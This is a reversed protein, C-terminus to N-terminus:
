RMFAAVRSSLGAMRTTTSHRQAMRLREIRLMEPETDDLKQLPGVIWTLLMDALAANRALVPGHMYTCVVRGVVAGDVGEQPDNGIGHSVRGLPSVGKGLRTVGGHNEYGSLIPLPMEPAPAVILEGVARPGTGRETKADVLGIGPQARGDMGVFSEGIVQFGACVALVAAGRQVARSLSGQAGLASASTSQPGDEGGGLCYIDASDPVAHDSTAMVVEAGIGRWRLRQALVTANGGDGYTGLLDPHVVVIRVKSESRTGSM